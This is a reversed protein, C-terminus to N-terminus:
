NSTASALGAPVKTSDTGILSEVRYGAVLSDPALGTLRRGLLPEESVADRV